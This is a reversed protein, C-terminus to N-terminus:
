LENDTNSDDSDDEIIIKKKIIVRKKTNENIDNNNFLLKIDNNLNTSILNNNNNLNTSLIKTDNVNINSDDLIFEELSKVIKLHPIDDPQLNRCLALLITNITDKHINFKNMISKFLQYTIADNTNKSYHIIFDPKNNFLSKSDNMLNIETINNKKKSNFNDLLLKIKNFYKKIKKICSLNDEDSLLKASLKLFGSTYNKYVDIDTKLKFIEDEYDLIKKDYFKKIYDELIEKYSNVSIIISELSRNIFKSIMLSTELVLNEINLLYTTLTNKILNDFCDHNIIINVFKPWNVCYENNNMYKKSSYSFLTKLSILDSNNIDNTNLLSLIHNINLVNKNENDHSLKKIEFLKNLSSNNKKILDLIEIYDNNEKELYKIYNYDNKINKIENINEDLENKLFQTFAYVLYNSYIKIDLLITKIIMIEYLSNLFLQSAKTISKEFDKVKLYLVNYGQANVYDCKNKDNDSNNHNNFEQIEIIFKISEYTIDYYKNNDYHKQYIPKLLDNYQKLFEHNKINKDIWFSYLYEDRINGIYKFKEDLYYYNPMFTDDISINLYIHIYDMYIQYKGKTNQGYIIPAELLFKIFDNIDIYDKKWREDSYEKFKNDDSFLNLLKTKNVTYNLNSDHTKDPKYVECGNNNLLEILGNKNYKNYDISNDKNTISAVRKIPSLKSM